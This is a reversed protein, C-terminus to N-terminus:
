LNPLAMTDIFGITIPAAGATVKVELLAEGSPAIDITFETGDVTAASDPQSDAYPTVRDPRLFLPALTSEGDVIVGRIRVQSAGAIPIIESATGLAAIETGAALAGRLVRHAFADRAMPVGKPQSNPEAPM